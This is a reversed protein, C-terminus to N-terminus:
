RGPANYIGEEPTVNSSRVLCKKAIFAGAIFALAGLGGAVYEGETTGFYTQLSCQALPTRSHPKFVSCPLRNDYAGTVNYTINGNIPPIYDDTINFPPIYDDTVNHPPIYVDDEELMESPAFTPSITPEQSPSITPARSPPNTSDDNRLDDDLGEVKNEAFISLFRDKIGGIFSFLGSDSKEDDIVIDEFNLFEEGGKNERLNKTPNEKVM